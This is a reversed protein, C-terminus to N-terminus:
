SPETFYEVVRQATEEDLGDLEDVKFLHPLQEDDFFTSFPTDDIIVYICEEKCNRLWADIEAGRCMVDVDPTVGVVRGPLQREEWMQVLGALGLVMKWTSSVVIDAGTADIIHRLNDVCKPDFLSGFNDTWPEGADALKQSYPSTALVGDFDLFLIKQM